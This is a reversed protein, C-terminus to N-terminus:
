VGAVRVIPVVPATTVQAPQVYLSPLILGRRIVGSETCMSMRGYFEALRSGLPFIRHGFLYSAFRFAGLSGNRRAQCPSGGLVCPLAADMLLWTLLAGPLLISFFDMLGVFITHPELIITRM